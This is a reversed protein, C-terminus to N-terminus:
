DYSSYLSVSADDLDVYLVYKGFCVCTSQATLRCVTPCTVVSLNGVNTLSILVNISESKPGLFSAQQLNSSGTDKPPLHPFSMFKQSLRVKQIYIKVLTHM